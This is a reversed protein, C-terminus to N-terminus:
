PAQWLDTDGPAHSPAAESRPARAIPGSLAADECVENFNRIAWGYDPAADEGLLLYARRYGLVERFADAIDYADALVPEAM